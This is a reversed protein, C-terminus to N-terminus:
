RSEGDNPKLGQALTIIQWVQRNFVYVFVSNGKLDHVDYRTLTGVGDRGISRSDPHVKYCAFFQAVTRADDGVQLTPCVTSMIPSGREVRVVDTRVFIRREGGKVCTLLPLAGPDYCEDMQQAFGQKLHVTDAYTPIAMGAMLLLILFMVGRFWPM